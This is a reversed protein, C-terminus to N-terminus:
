TLRDPRAPALASKDVPGLIDALQLSYRESNPYIFMEEPSTVRRDLPFDKNFAIGM